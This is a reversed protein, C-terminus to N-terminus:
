FTTCILSCLLYLVIGKNHLQYQLFVSVEATSSFVGGWNWFRQYQYQSKVNQLTSNVSGVSTNNNHSGSFGFYTFLCSSTYCPVYCECNWLFQFYNCLRATSCAVTDIHCCLLSQQQRHYLSVQPFFGRYSSLDTSTRNSMLCYM